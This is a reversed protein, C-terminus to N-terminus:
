RLVCHLLSDVASEAYVGALHNVPLTLCEGAQITGLDTTAGAATRTGITVPEGAGDNALHLLPATAFDVDTTMGASGWVYRRGRVKVTWAPGGWATEPTPTSM